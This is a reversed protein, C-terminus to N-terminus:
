RDIERERERELVGDVDELEYNLNLSYQSELTSCAFNAVLLLAVVVQFPLGNFVRHTHTIVRQIGQTYTHYGTSYWTRILFIFVCCVCVCVCVCVRM